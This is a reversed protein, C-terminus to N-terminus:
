VKDQKLDVCLAHMPITSIPLVLAWAAIYWSGVVRPRPNQNSFLPKRLSLSSAPDNLPFTQEEVWIM